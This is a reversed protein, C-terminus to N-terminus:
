QATVPLVCRFGVNNAKEHQEKRYSFRLHEEAKSYYSGGRTVHHRGTEPGKPDAGPSKAYYGADFFDSVWEWVNGSMDRLYWPNPDFTGVPALQEFLDSGATGEFNASERAKKRDSLFPEDSKGARAAYEWEAETPLRGGAWECYAKAEDWSVGTVPYTAQGSKKKYSRNALRFREWFAVTVETEGLWFARTIDVEHRPKEEPRCDAEAAPVCGMLFKGAPIYIYKERHPNYKSDGARLPREVEKVEVKVEVKAAVPAPAILYTKSALSGAYYLPVQRGASGGAVQEQIDAVIRAVTLGPKLLASAFAETFLVGAKVPQASSIAVVTNTASAPDSVVPPALGAADSKSALSDTWSAEVAVLKLRAKTASLLDVIYDVSYAMLAVPRNSAPDFDAPLLFNNQGSQLSYGSYYIVATGGAPVAATFSALTDKLDSLRVNPKVTVVFGLKTLADELGLFGGNEALPPLRNYQANHILLARRGQLVADGDATQQQAAVSAVLWLSCALSVTPRKM